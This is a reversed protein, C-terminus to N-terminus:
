KPYVYQYIDDNGRRDSSFYAGQRYWIIGFDNRSSNIPAGLNEPPHVPRHATDLRVRFIDMGGLGPWRDSSFYLVGAEDLYPFMEDGSTNIGPGANVPAAWGSDTRLCYYLDKGGWGGPMDATFFLISGDPHLAPHGTSYDNSNYPFEGQKIWSGGHAVLRYIKLRNIAQRGIHVQNNRTIYATDHRRNFCVPGEHYRENLQAHFPFVMKRSLQNAVPVFNIKPNVVPRRSDNSSALKNDNNRPDKAAYSLLHKLAPPRLSADIVHATDTVRYLTLFDAGNWAFKRRFTGNGPRDSVFVLGGNYFVPSFDAYGSNINLLIAHASLSDRYLSDLGKEYLAATAAILPDYGHQKLWQRYQRAAETYRSHMALLQAYRLSAHATTDARVLRGYADQAQTYQQTRDYSDALKSLAGYQLTDKQLVKEYFPIAAVYQLSHYAKDGQSLLYRQQACLCVPLLLWLFTIRFIYKM